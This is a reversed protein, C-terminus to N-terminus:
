NFSLRHTVPGGYGAFVRTSARVAGFGGWASLRRLWPEGVPAKKMVLV